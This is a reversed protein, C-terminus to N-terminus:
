SILNNSLPWRLTRLGMMAWFRGQVWTGWIQTSQRLISWVRGQSGLHEYKSYMSGTPLIKAGTRFSEAFHRQMSFGSDWSRPMSPSDTLVCGAALPHLYRTILSNPDWFGYLSHDKLGLDKIIPYRSGRVYRILPKTRWAAEKLTKKGSPHEDTTRKMDEPNRVSGTPCIPEFSGM